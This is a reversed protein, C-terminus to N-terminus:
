SEFNVKHTWKENKNRMELPFDIKGTVDWLADVLGVEKRWEGNSVSEDQGKVHESDKWEGPWAM